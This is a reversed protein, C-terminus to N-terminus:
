ACGSIGYVLASIEATGTGSGAISALRRRITSSPSTGEAILGGM